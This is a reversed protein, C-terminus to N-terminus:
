NFMDSLIGIVKRDEERTIKGRLDFHDLRGSVSFNRRALGVRKTHILTDIGIIMTGEIIM